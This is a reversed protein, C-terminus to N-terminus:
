LDKLHLKVLIRRLRTKLFHKIRGKTTDEAYKQVVFTYGQKEYDLWFCERNNPRKSPRNHNYELTKQDAISWCFIAEQAREMLNKGKESNVILISTGKNDDIEPKIKECGWFDGIAFDACNLKGAYPCQYCSEKLILNKYFLDKFNQSSKTKWEKTGDDYEIEENHEHWGKVKSRNIYGVIKKGRKKSLYALHEQWIKPSPAGHCIIEITFLSDTNISKAKLYRLLGDVECSTGVFLVKRKGVLDNKVQTFIGSLNSQVYKSGRMKDRIEKTEARIHEAVFNGNYVVGYVVGKEEIILDSIATFAGGSASNKRVALDKHQLAIVDIWEKENNYLNIAPCVNKCLGCQLCTDYNIEPFLYGEANERMVISSNPCISQCATCGFCSDVNVNFM